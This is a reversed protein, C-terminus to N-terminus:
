VVVVVVLGVLIGFTLLAQMVTTALVGLTTYGATRLSKGREGSRRYEVLFVTGASAVLLGVPGAVLMGGLGVVGAVLSLRTSAGGAKAAVASGFWDVALVAVGVATFLALVVPGPDAYGTSFWYTYVGALSLFAGPLLPVFSGFVGVTALALALVVLPDIGFVM